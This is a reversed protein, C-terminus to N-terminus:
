VGFRQRIIRGLEDIERAERELDRGKESLAELGTLEGSSMAGQVRELLALGEGM